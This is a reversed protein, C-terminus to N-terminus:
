FFAEYDFDTLSNCAYTHVTLKVFNIIWTLVDYKSSFILTKIVFSTVYFSIAEIRRNHLLTCQLNKMMDISNSLFM